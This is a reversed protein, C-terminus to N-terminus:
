SLPQKHEETYNFAPPTRGSDNSLAASKTVPELLFLIYRRNQDVPDAIQELQDLLDRQDKDVAVAIPLTRNGDALERRLAEVEIGDVRGASYFRASFPPEGTYVLRASPKDSLHSATMVLERETRLLEPHLSVWGSALSGLVPIFLTAAVSSRKLRRGIDPMLLGSSLAAVFPLGPLVYTWLINGALTFFVAPTVAALLVLASVHQEGTHWQQLQFAGCWHNRLVGAVAVLGWPMSALVLYLWITGRPFDHASGYLDGQWGSVVFRKIHEGVIFYDLFGPTKLEALVYWPASMLLTLALGRVWPLSHWLTQWRNFTLAWLFVPLGALVLVLPGKALLGTALGIFFLWGWLPPGGQLRIILSVLTLSTGLALFSDTMVTGASLFGLATTAYILAAWLGQTKAGHGLPDPHLYRRLNYVLWVIGVNALWSPLRGAFESVGFLKFSLAQTWFSLPPKGWFPVGIDFWPTIWDGTEAMIRAMEAYRPETTDAFPLLASLGLRAALVSVLLWLLTNSIRTM